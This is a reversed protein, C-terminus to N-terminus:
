RRAREDGAEPADAAIKCPRRVSHPRHAVGIRRFCAIFSSSSLGSLRLASDAVALGQGFDATRMCDFVTRQLSTVRLGRVVVYKDDAVVHWRVGKSNANRHSRTTAVHVADLREYSVSLGIAVAASEHCFVLEPHMDQMTRLVHLAQERRSLGDWYSTRAFIGRAPRVVKGSELYRRLISRTRECHSVVCMGMREARSFLRAMEADNAKM